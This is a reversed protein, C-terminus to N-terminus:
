SHDIYLLDSVAALIYAPHVPKALIEFSHGKARAEELLVGTEPHGSILLLRCSPYNAQIVVALDIGNMRPLMVDLIAADPQWQSLIEVAQEASNAARADYGQAAFVLILTEAIHIEDDVILIKGNGAIAPM